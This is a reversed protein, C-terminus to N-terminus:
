WPEEAIMAIASADTTLHDTESAPTQLYGAVIAEGVKRRRESEVFDELARRVAASRSSVVGEKVLKDIKEVLGDDLRTVLQPM